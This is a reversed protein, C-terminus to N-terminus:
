QNDLVHWLSVDKALTTANYLFLVESISETMFLMDANYVYYRPDMVLIKKYNGLLFPIFCNAYSDKILLLTKENDISTEIELLPYNGGLFVEYPNAGKLKDMDYCSSFGENSETRLVYYHPNQASMYISISDYSPLFFGSKSSLSGQFRNM